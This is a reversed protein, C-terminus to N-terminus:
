AFVTVALIDELTQGSVTFFPLTATCKLALADGDEAFEFNMFVLPSYFQIEKGDLKNQAVLLLAIQTLDEQGVHYSYISNSTIQSGTLGMIKGLVLDDVQSLSFEISGGKENVYSARLYNDIGTRVEQTKKTYNVKAMGNVIGLDTWGSLALSGAGKTSPVVAATQSDPTSKMFVRPAPILRIMQSGTLGTGSMPKQSTYANSTIPM